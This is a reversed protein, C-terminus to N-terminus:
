SLGMNEPFAKWAGLEESRILFVIRNILKGPATRPGFPDRLRFTGWTSSPGVIKLILRKYYVEVLEVFLRKGIFDPNLRHIVKFSQVRSQVDSISLRSDLSHIPLLAYYVLDRIERPFYAHVQNCLELCLAKAYISLQHQVNAECSIRHRRFGLQQLKIKEIAALMRNMERTSFDMTNNWKDHERLALEVQVKQSELDM